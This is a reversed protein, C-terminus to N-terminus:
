ANIAYGCKPCCRRSIFRPKPEELKPGEAWYVGTFWSTKCNASVNAGSRDAYTVAYHRENKEFFWGRGFPNWRILIVRGSKSEIEEKIRCKDVFHM